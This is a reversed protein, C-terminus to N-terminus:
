DKLWPAKIRQNSERTDTGLLVIPHDFEGLFWKALSQGLWVQDEARFPYQDIVGRIGDASFLKKM